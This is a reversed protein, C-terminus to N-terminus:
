HTVFITQVGRWAQLVLIFGDILRQHGGDNFVLQRRAALQRFLRQRLDKADAARPDALHQLSEGSHM